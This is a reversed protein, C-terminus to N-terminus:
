LYGILPLINLYKLIDIHNGRVFSRSGPYFSTHVDDAVRCQAGQIFRRARCHNTRGSYRGVM